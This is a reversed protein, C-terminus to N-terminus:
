KRTTATRNLAAAAGTLRKQTYTDINIYSITNLVRDTSHKGWRYLITHIYKTHFIIWIYITFSVIWIWVSIKQKYMASSTYTIYYISISNFFEKYSLTNYLIELLITYVLQM